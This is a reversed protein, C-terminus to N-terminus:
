APRPGRATSENGTMLDIELEIESTGSAEATAGPALGGNGLDIRVAQAGLAGTVSIKDTNTVTAAGCQAGGVEIQGGPTRAITATENAATIGVTVTGASFTCNVAASAPAGAFPLPALLALFLAVFGIVNARVHKRIRESM